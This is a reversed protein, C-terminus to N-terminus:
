KIVTSVYLEKRNSFQAEYRCIDLTVLKKNLLDMLRGPTAVMMHVCRGIFCVVHSGFAELFKVGALLWQFSQLEEMTHCFIQSIYYFLTTIYFEIEVSTTKDLEM